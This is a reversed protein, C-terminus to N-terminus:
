FFIMSETAAVADHLVIHASFLQAAALHKNRQRMWRALRLSIKAFRQHDNGAHLLLRMEHRKIQRVRVITEDHRKRSLRCLCEKFTM